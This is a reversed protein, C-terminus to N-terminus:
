SGETLMKLLRVAKSEVPIEQHDTEREAHDHLPCLGTVEGHDGMAVRRPHALRIKAAGDGQGISMFSCSCAKCRTVQTGKLQTNV